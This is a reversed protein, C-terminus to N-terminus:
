SDPTTTVPLSPALVRSPSVSTMSILPLACAENRLDLRIYIHEHGGKFSVTPIRRATVTVPGRMTEDSTMHWFRNEAESLEFPRLKMEDKQKAAVDEHNVLNIWGKDHTALYLCPDATVLSKDIFLQEARTGHVGALDTASATGYLRVIDQQNVIAKALFSKNVALWYAREEYTHRM